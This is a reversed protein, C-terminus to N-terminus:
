SETADCWTVLNNIKTELKMLELIHNLLKVDGAYLLIGSCKIVSSNDNIFLLLLISVLHVNYFVLDISDSITANFIVLRQTENSLDSNGM